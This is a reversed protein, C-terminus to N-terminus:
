QKSPCQKCKLLATRKATIVPEMELWFAEVWNANKRKRKWPDDDQSLTHQLTDLFEGIKVLDRSYCTNIHTLIEKRSHHIKKPQLRIKSHVLSHDTDCDASHYSHTILVSSLSQCRTIILDLQHWHGSRPHRWSLKQCPKTQFFTNTVCFNHICCFELLWQGNKNMKGIRQHDPCTPWIDRYSGVRANFDGLLLLFENSPINKVATNLDEYFIDKTEPSASMTPAYICLINATGQESSLHLTPMRETGEKPPTIIQLLHNRVAFGIGCERTEQEPKGHWFFTYCQEKVFRSNALWTEQMAAIDWRWGWSNKTLSQQKGSMMWTQYAQHWTMNCQGLTGAQLAYFQHRQNEKARTQHRQYIALKNFFLRRLKVCGTFCALWPSVAGQNAPPQGAQPLCYSDLSTCHGRGGDSAVGPM